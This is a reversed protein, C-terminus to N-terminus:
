LRNTVDGAGSFRGRIDVRSCESKPMKQPPRLVIGGPQRFAGGDEEARPARESRRRRRGGIGVEEATTLKRVGGQLEYAWGRGSGIV